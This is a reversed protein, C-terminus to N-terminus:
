QAYIVVIFLVIRGPHHRTPSALYELWVAFSFAVVVDEADVDADLVGPHLYDDFEFPGSGTNEVRGPVALEATREFAGYAAAMRSQATSPDAHM